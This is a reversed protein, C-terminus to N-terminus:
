VAAREPKNFIRKAIEEATEVNESLFTQHYKTSEQFTKIDKLLFRYRLQRKKDRYTRAQLKGSRVLRIITENGLRLLKCAKNLSVESIDNDSANNLFSDIKKELDTLKNWIQEQTVLM